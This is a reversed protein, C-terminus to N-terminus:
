EKKGQHFTRNGVIQEIEELQSESLASFSPIGSLIDSTKKM